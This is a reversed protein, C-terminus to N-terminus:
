LLFNRVSLALSKCDDRIQNRSKDTRMRAYVHSPDCTDPDRILDYGLSRVLGASVAIIRQSEFGCSLVKSPKVEDAVYLSFQHSQERFALSNLVITGDANTSSVHQSPTIRRYLMASDPIDVADEPM